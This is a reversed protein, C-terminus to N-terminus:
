AGFDTFSRVAAADLRAVLELVLDRAALYDRWHILSVHSHIYRAPVGIVVTPVGSRHVHVSKADTGGSRRVAFQVAIGADEATKKVFRVLARNSIATPDYFRIQPGKGLVAQRETFGPLDDAPTGELVLGVDPRALESATAAGRSGVEEQVAGVGIVTNPHPRSRLELLVECLVGIGARNDFAKSSLIDSVGMEEFTAHPVVTDGVQVGLRSVQEADAAGVDIYMDELQLVKNREEASLFHPPKSGVVGPVKGQETVVDVRQGLLVHGWWGGLPVFLLKGESTISQVMFGVEDMHGDLVIRPFDASGRKECLISGLRDYRVEGTGALTERLIARVEDEAGPAGAALTLRRLLDKVDNENRM